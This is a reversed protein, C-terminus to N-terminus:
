GKTKARGRRAAPHHLWTKWDTPQGSVPGDPLFDTTVNKFTFSIQLFALSLIVFADPNAM